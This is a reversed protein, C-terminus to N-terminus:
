SILYYLFFKFDNFEQTLKTFGDFLQINKDKIENIVKHQLSIISYIKNLFDKSVIVNSFNAHNHDFGNPNNPNNNPNNNANAHFANMQLQINLMPDAINPQQHQPQPMEHFIAPIANITPKQNNNANTNNNNQMLLFTLLQNENLPANAMLPIAQAQMPNKMNLFATNQNIQKNQQMGMMKM